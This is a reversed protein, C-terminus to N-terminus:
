NVYERTDTLGHTRNRDAVKQRRVCGCNDSRGSTLDPGWVFRETGCDCRCLWYYKGFNRLEFSITVFWRGFRRGDLDPATRPMVAM